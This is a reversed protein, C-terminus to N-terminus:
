ETFLLKYVASLYCVKCVSYLRKVLAKSFSQLVKVCVLM